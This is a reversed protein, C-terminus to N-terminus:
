FPLTTATTVFKQFVQLAKRPDLETHAVEFNFMNAVLIDDDDIAFRVVDGTQAGILCFLNFHDSTTTTSTGTGTSTNNIYQTGGSGVNGATTRVLSRKATVDTGSQDNITFVTSLSAGGTSPAIMNMNIVHYGSRLPLYNRQADPDYVIESSGRRLNMFNSSNNTTTATTNVSTFYTNASTPFPERGRFEWEAEVEYQHDEGAALGVACISVMGAFHVIADTEGTTSATFQPDIPYWKSNSVARLSRNGDNPNWATFTSNKEFNSIYDMSPTPITPDLSAVIGIKAKSTSPLAGVFKITFNKLRCHTYTKCAETLAQSHSTSGAPATAAGGSYGFFQLSKWPTVPIRVAYTNNTVISNVASIALYRHKVCAIQASADFKSSTAIAAPASSIRTPIGSAQQRRAKKAQRRKKVAKRVSRVIQSGLKYAGTAAAVAPVAVGVMDSVPQLYSDHVQLRRPPQHRPM